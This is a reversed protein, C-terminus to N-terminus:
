GGGRRAYLLFRGDLEPPLPVKAFGPPAIGMLLGSGLGWPQSQIHNMLDGSTASCLAIWRVQRTELEGASAEPSSGFLRYTAEVGEGNGHYPSGIVPRGTRYHIEPGAFVDALVSGGPAPASLAPVASALQDWRCDPVNKWVIVPMWLLAVAAAVAWHGATAGAAVGMRLWRSSSDGDPVERVRRWLRWASETWPIAAAAAAFPIGRYAYVAYAVFVASATCTVVFRTREEEGVAGKALAWAGLAIALLAPGLELVFNYADDPTTPLFRQEAPIYPLLREQIVSATALYPNRVLGPFAALLIAGVLAGGVVGVAVRRAATAAPARGSAAVLLAAVAALGALLGVQVISLREYSLELLRSPPRELLLCAAATVTAGVAFRLLRRAAVPTGDLLWVLALGAAVAGAIVVSEVSAWVALAAAVGALLGSRRTEAPARLLLALAALLFFVQLFHHDVLGPLFDYSIGRQATLFASLLLFQGDRLFPRTGWSMVLIAGAHLLPGLLVAWVFLAREFPMFAGVVRAPGYLLADLLRSWHLAFGTPYNAGRFTPDFWAGTSHLELVRSLRTYSDSDWLQNWAGGGRLPNVEIAILWAHVAVVMLVAIVLTRRRHM